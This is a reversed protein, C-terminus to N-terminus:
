RGGKHQAKSAAPDDEDTQDILAGVAQVSHLGPVYEEADAPGNLSACTNLTNSTGIL